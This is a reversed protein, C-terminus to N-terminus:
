NVIIGHARMPYSNAVIIEYGVLALLIIAKNFLRALIFVVGLIRRVSEM